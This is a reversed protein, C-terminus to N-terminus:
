ASVIASLKSNDQQMSTVDSGAYAANRCLGGAFQSEEACQVAVAVATWGRWDAAGIGRKVM